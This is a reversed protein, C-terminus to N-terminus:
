FKFTIIENEWIAFNSLRKEEGEDESISGPMPTDRDRLYIKSVWFLLTICCAIILFAITVFTAVVESKYNGASEFQVETAMEGKLPSSLALHQLQFRFTPFQFMKLSNPACAIKMKMISSM